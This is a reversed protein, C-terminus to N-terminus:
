APLLSLAQPEPPLAHKSQVVGPPTQLPPTQARDVEELPDPPLEEPVRSAPQTTEDHGAQVKPVPLQESAPAQWHQV